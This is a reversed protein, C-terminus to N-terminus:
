PEEQPLERLRHAVERAKRRMENLEYARSRRWGGPDLSHRWPLGREPAACAELDAELVEVPRNVLGFRVQWVFIRGTEVFRTPEGDEEGYYSVSSWGPEIGGILRYTAGVVQGVTPRLGRRKWQVNLFKEGFRLREVYGTVRVWQGIQFSAKM